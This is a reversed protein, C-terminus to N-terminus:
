KKDNKDVINKQRDNDTSVKIDDDIAGGNLANLVKNKPGDAIIRGQEMLILRDVLNLLSFRHTVVVLGRGEEDLWNKLSHVLLAESNNDM